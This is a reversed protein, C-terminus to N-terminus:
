DLGLILRRAHDDSPGLPGLGVSDPFGAPNEGMKTLVKARRADAEPGASWFLETMWSLIRHLAGFYEDHEKAYRDIAADWDDTANLANSLHEADLLTLALGSGWSPDSAAAADGVLVVRNKAPFNIWQDAGSFEALPGLPEVNAFWSSPAGADQSSQLFEPVKAQGSLSRCGTVGGPYVVYVRSRKNGLPALLTATGGGFFLHVANDPVDTNGILLGAIILFEPDRQLEFGCWKRVQSSRGDAGIVLRTTLSQTQGAHQYTVTPNRDPGSEVRTVTAERIVDAGAKIASQLLAEQLDPHYINIQTENFPTTAKLDRARGEGGGFYITIFQPQTGGAALLDEVVGLRRASLVGWALLNEGRVRDKFKKERELVLVKKGNQGLQKGIVSGALGGGVIIADYNM